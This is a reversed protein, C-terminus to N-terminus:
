VAAQNGEDVQGANPEPVCGFYRKIKRPTHKSRCVGNRVRLFTQANMAARPLFRGDDIGKEIDAVAEVRAERYLIYSQHTLFPHEHEQLICTGDCLDNVWSAVCVVLQKGDPCPDTCVVFLHKRNPDHSPGSPILLTSSRAVM